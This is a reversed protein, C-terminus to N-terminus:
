KIKYDTFFHVQIIIITGAYVIYYIICKIKLTFGVYVM